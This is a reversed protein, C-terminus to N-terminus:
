LGEDSGYAVVRGIITVPHEGLMIAKHEPNTSVPEFRAPNDRYRKITAEGDGNQVLYVRREFLTKQTPDIAAWSKDPLIMDMSDGDVLVAFAPKTGQRKLMPMRREPISIAERWTGAAAIGIIPVWVVNEDRSDTKAEMGFLRALTAMEDQQIMRDGKKIETIRAPAVGLLEAVQKGTYRKSELRRILEDRIEDHTIMAPCQSFRLAGDIVSMTIKKSASPNRIDYNM